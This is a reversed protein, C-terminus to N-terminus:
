LRPFGEVKTSPSKVLEFVVGTSVVDSGNGMQLANSGYKGTQFESGSADKIRFGAALCM